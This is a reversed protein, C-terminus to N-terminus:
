GHVVDEPYIPDAIFPVAESWTYTLETNRFRTMYDTDEQQRLVPMNTRVDFEIAIQATDNTLDYLGVTGDHPKFIIAEQGYKEGLAVLIEFHVGYVFFSNEFEYSKAGTSVPWVGQISEWTYGVSNLDQALETRRQKNENRSIEGKDGSIIGFQEGETIDHLRFLETKTIGYKVFIDLIQASREFNSLREIINILASM